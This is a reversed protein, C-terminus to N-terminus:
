KIFVHEFWYSPTVRFNTRHKGCETQESYPNAENNCLLQLLQQSRPYVHSELTPPTHQMMREGAIDNLNAFFM